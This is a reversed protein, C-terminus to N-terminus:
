DAASPRSCALFRGLNQWCSATVHLVFFVELSVVGAVSSVGWWVVRPRGYGRRIDGVYKHMGRPGIDQSQKAGNTSYHPWRFKICDAFGKQCDLTHIFQVINFAILRHIDANRSAICFNRRAGLFNVNVHKQEARVTRAGLELGADALEHVQLQPRGLFLIM